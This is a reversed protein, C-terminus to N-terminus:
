IVHLHKLISTVCGMSDNEAVAMEHATFTYEDFGRIQPIPLVSLGGPNYAALTIHPRYMDGFLKYGYRMVSTMEGKDLDASDIESPYLVLDAVAQRVREQVAILHITKSYAIELYCNRTSSIGQATLQIPAGAPLASIRDIAEAANESKFSGSFVTLHCIRSHGDLKFLSDDTPLSAALDAVQRAVEAPPTICFNLQVSSTTGSNM